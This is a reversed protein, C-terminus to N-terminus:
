QKGNISQIENSEGMGTAEMIVDIYIVGRYGQSVGTEKGADGAISTRQQTATHPRHLKGRLM